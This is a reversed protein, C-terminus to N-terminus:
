SLEEADSLSYLGESSSSVTSVPSTGVSYNRSRTNEGDGIRCRTGQTPTRYSPNQPLLRQLYSHGQACHHTLAAKLLECLESPPSKPRFQLTLESSLPSKWENNSFQNRKLQCNWRIAVTVVEKSLKCLNSVHRKSAIRIKSLAQSFLISLLPIMMNTIQHQDIHCPFRRCQLLTLLLRWAVHWTLKHTQKNNTQKNRQKKTQQNTQKSKMNTQKNTQKHRTQKNSQNSTQENRRKNYKNAM